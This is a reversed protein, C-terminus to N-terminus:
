LPQLPGSPNPNDALLAWWLVLAILAIVASAILLRDLLGLRRRAKQDDSLSRMFSPRVASTGRSREYVAELRYLAWGVLPMTVACGALVMLFRAGSEDAHRTLWLWAAPVAIWLALSGLVLLAVLGANAARAGM